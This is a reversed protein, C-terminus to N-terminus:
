GSGYSTTLCHGRTTSLMPLNRPEARLRAAIAEGGSRWRDRIVDSSWGDLEDFNLAWLTNWESLDATLAESLGYMEPTM